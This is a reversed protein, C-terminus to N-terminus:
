DEFKFMSISVTDSQPSWLFKHISDGTVRSAPQWWADAIRPSGLSIQFGAPIIGRSRFLWVHGNLYKTKFFCFSSQNLVTYPNCPNRTNNPLPFSWIVLEAGRGRGVGRGLGNQLYYSMWRLIENWNDTKLFFILFIIFTQWKNYYLTM